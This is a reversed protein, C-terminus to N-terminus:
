QSKFQEFKICVPNFEEKEPDWEEADLNNFDIGHSVMWAALEDISGCQLQDSSYGYYLDYIEHWDSNNYTNHRIDLNGEDDTYIDWETSGAKEANDLVVEAFKIPDIKITKM